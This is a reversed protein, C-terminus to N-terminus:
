LPTISYSMTTQYGNSSVRFDISKSFPIKCVYAGSGSSFTVFTNKIISLVNGEGFDVGDIILKYFNVNGYVRLVGRGTKSTEVGQVSVEYEPTVYDNGSNSEISNVKTSISNVNTTLTSLKSEM